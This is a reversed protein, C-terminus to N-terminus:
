IRSIMGKMIAAMRPQAANAAKQVEEHSGKDVKENTAVNTIVSMGFVEIGHQALGHRKSTVVAMRYGADKLLRLTEICGDYARAREDHVAENYLRYVRVVERAVEEDGVLDLAQVDLPQGVLRMTEQPTFTRGIVQQYAHNFSDLILQYTDLLTGDNDFLIAKVMGM